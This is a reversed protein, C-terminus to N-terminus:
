RRDIARLEKHHASIQGLEQAALHSSVLTQSDSIGYFQKVDKSDMLLVQVALTFVVYM